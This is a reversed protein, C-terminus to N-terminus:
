TEEQPTFTASLSALAEDTTVTGASALAALAATRRMLAVLYNAHNLAELRTAFDRQIVETSWDRDTACRGVVSSGPMRRAAYYVDVYWRRRRGDWREAGQWVAARIRSDTISM